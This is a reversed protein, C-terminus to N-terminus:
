ALVVVLGAKALMGKLTDVTGPMGLPSRGAEHLAAALRRDVEQQEHEPFLGTGHFRAELVGPSRPQTLRTDIQGCTEANNVGLECSSAPDSNSSVRIELPNTTNETM